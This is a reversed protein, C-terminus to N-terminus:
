MWRMSSSLAPLMTRRLMKASMDDSSFIPTGSPIFTSTCPL